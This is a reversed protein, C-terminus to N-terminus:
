LIYWLTVVILVTFLLVLLNFYRDIFDKVQKGYVFITGAVLFFRSGRGILSCITFPILPLKCFGASLTVLKYPLPTFAAILVTWTQYSRYYELVLEFQQPTFLLRIMKGGISEWLAFGIMYATIGGAVSALTALLAYYFAKKQKHLCYVILVPDVPVFFIAEIFFLLALISTSHPKDVCESLRDYLRKLSIGNSKYGVYM